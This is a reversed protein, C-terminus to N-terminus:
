NLAFAMLIAAGVGVAFAIKEDWAEWRNRRRHLRMSDELLEKYKEKEVECTVLKETAVAGIALAPRLKEEYYDCRIRYSAEPWIEPKENPHIYEIQPPLSLKERSNGWSATWTLCLIM